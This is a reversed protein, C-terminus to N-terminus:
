GGKLINKKNMKIDVSVEMKKGVRSSFFEHKESKRKPFYILGWVYYSISVFLAVSTLRDM